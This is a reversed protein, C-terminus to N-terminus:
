NRKTKSVYSLLPGVIDDDSFVDVIVKPPVGMRIKKTRGHRGFSVVRTNLLGLIDLENLLGSIRRQTLSEIPIDACFDCYLNYLEGTISGDPSTSDLRHASILILKQHLPLSKLAEKFRNDEIKKLAEKVHKEVIMNAESREAIEGAVRLLDLARRADGHERAAYAACLRLSSDKLVDESFAKEVREHLIDYLEEASYPKFIVEEESLCSLVRADLFEKFRLDNSIGILGVWGNYLRENIRTLEYLLSDDESRKVLADVEDLAIIESVKLSNLKREFRDLLETVALGTIPVNIDLSRCVDALIRYNTGVLRCNIYCVRLPAGIAKAKGELHTLVYRTVATKGTGPKGYIFANSTKSGSLSPAVINGLRQIHETRHPLKEPIYDHRLINRSIFIHGGALFKDFIEDLRGSALFAM